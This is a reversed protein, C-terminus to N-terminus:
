GKDRIVGGNRVEQIKRVDENSQGYKIMTNKQYQNKNYSFESENVQKRQALRPPSAIPNTKILITEHVSENRVRCFNQKCQKFPLSLNRKFISSTKPSYDTSQNSLIKSPLLSKQNILNNKLDLLNKSQSRRNLGNNNCNQSSSIIQALKQSFLQKQLTSKSTKQISEDSSEDEVQEFKLSTSSNMKKNKDKVIYELNVQVREELLELQKDFFENIKTRNMPNMQLNQQRDDEVKLLQAGYFKELNSLADLQLKIVNKFMQKINKSLNRPEGRVFSTKLEDDCVEFSSIYHGVPTSPTDLTNSALDNQDFNLAKKPTIINMNFEDDFGKLATLKSNNAQISLNPENLGPMSSSRRFKELSNNTSTM